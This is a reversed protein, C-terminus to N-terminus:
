KEPMRDKMVAQNSLPGLLNWAVSAVPFFASFAAVRSSSSSFHVSSLCVWMASAYPGRKSLNRQTDNGLLRGVKVSHLENRGLEVLEDLVVLLESTNGLSALVAFGGFINAGQNARCGL